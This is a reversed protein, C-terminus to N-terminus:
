SRSGAKKRFLQQGPHPQLPQRAIQVGECQPAGQQCTIPVIGPHDPLDDRLGICLRHGGVQCAFLLLHGAGPLARRM